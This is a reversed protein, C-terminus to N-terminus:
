SGKSGQGIGDDWGEMITGSVALGTARGLGPEGKVKSSEDPRKSQPIPGQRFLAELEQYRESFSSSLQPIGWTEGSKRSM